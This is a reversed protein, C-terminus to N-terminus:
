LVKFVFCLMEWLAIPYAKIRYKVEDWLEGSELGESVGSGTGGEPLVGQGVDGSPSRVSTSVGMRLYEGESRYSDRVSSSNGVPRADPVPGSVSQVKRVAEDANGDRHRVGGDVVSERSADHRRAEAPDKPRFGKRERGSDTVPTYGARQ